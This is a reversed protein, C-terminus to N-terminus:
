KNEKKINNIIAFLDNCRISSEAFRILSDIAEGFEKPSYPMKKYEIPTTKDYPKESRRWKQMEKCIQISEKLGM